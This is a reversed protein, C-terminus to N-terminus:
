GPESWKWNIAATPPLLGARSIAEDRAAFRNKVYESTAKALVGQVADYVLRRAPGLRQAEHAVTWRNDDTFLSLRGATTEEHLISYIAAEVIALILPNNRQEDNM